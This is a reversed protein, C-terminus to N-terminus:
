KSILNFKLAITVVLLVFTTFVFYLNYNVMAQSFLSLIEENQFVSKTYKLYIERTGIGGISIPLNTIVTLILSDLLNLSSEEIIRIKELGILKMTFLQISLIQSLHCISGLTFLRSSNFITNVKLNGLNKSKINKCKFKLLIYNLVFYILLITILLIIFILFKHIIKNAYIISLLLAGPIFLSISFLRDFYTYIFADKLKIYKMKYKIYLSRFIDNLASLGIFGVITGISTLIIFDGLNIKEKSIFNFIYKFRLSATILQVILLLFILITWNNLFNFELLNKGFKINLFNILYLTIIPPTIIQFIFKKSKLKHIIKM